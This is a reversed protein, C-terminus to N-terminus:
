VTIGGGGGDVICMHKMYKARRGGNELYLQRCDSHM